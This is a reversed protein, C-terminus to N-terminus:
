KPASGARGEFDDWDCDGKLLGTCIQHPGLVEDCKECYSYTKKSRIRKSPHNEKMRKRSRSVKRKPVAYARAFLVAATPDSNFPFTGPAAVKPAPGTSAVLLAPACTQAASPGTSGLASGRLATLRGLQRLGSGLRTM